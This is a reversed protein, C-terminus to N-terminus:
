KCSRKQKQFFSDELGQFIYSKCFDGSDCREAKLKDDFRIKCFSCIENEVLGGIAEDLMSLLCDTYLNINQSFTKKM